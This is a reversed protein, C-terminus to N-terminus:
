SHMGGGVLVLEPKAYAAGIYGSYISMSYRLGRIVHPTERKIDAM